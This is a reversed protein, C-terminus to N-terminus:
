TPIISVETVTLLWPVVSYLPGVTENACDSRNAQEAPVVLPEAYERLTDRLFTRLGDITRIRDSLEALALEVAAVVKADATEPSRLLMPLRPVLWDELQEVTTRSEAFELIRERLQSSLM